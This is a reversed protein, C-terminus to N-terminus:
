SLNGEFCFNFTKLCCCFALCCVRYNNIISNWIIHGMVVMSPVSLSSHSYFSLCLHAPFLPLAQHSSAITPVGNCLPLLAQGVLIYFIQLLCLAQSLCVLHCYLSQTTPEPFTLVSMKSKLFVKISYQSDNTKCREM